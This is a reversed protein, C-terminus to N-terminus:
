IPAPAATERPVADRPAGKQQLQVMLAIMENALAAM